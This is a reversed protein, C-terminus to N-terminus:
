ARAGSRAADLEARVLALEEDIPDILRAADALGGAAALAELQRCLDELATARFTAANSKLTHAGRRLEDAEAQESAQRLTAMISASSTLFTEILRNVLADDQQLTDRLEALDAHDATSPRPPPAETGQRPVADTIPGRRPTRALADALDAFRIPKSVYDDMGAALCVEREDAMANATVAIIHPRDAGPWRQHIRRTAELGDMEPMQVDMLVVDYPQRQLAELAELGNGVIDARYGLRQLVLGALQQNTANDEAVLIRLPAVPVPAQAGPAADPTARDPADAPTDGFVDMLVDLLQSPRIPKTLHAALEVDPHAVERHGLSTLLVLPLQRADRDHRIERALTLGDMDPMQMDLIAIDVPDGRRIWEIAEAPSSTERPDMGWAATQRALILRNTPSDDVILLRKGALLAAHDPGKARAPIPAADAELEVHFTSGSGLTSEARISGDMLEILRRSIALGLGTGGYRRTVSADVQSFSAFLRDMRDAPIGVGTDSVALHIRHRGPGAESPEADVTLVVEGRETFKVGNKLLNILIQRLRTSDGVIWEPVGPEFVYAMDIGKQEASAAVLELASEICARLDFPRTELELGGAEIKSFDLIDNIVALLANGSSDIVQAFGRQERSLETDLLLGTMGLVANLPTRIEHSMTALFVSKAQNAADAERSAAQVEDFLRANEIAVAAQAGFAVALNAHEDTYFDPEHKDLAIMGIVRDGFILPSGLWSAVQAPQHAERRFEAFTASADAVIIPTRSRIVQGNPSDDDDLEFSVGILADLDPFGTGGIIELREDRLVQISASDYPVVEQLESLIRDLVQRLDLTTSLALAAARLTDALGRATREADLLRANEAALAALDDNQTRLDEEARKIETIDRAIGVLALVSGDDNRVAATALGVPFDTGDKRRNLVEGQWHGQEITTPLIQSAVEVPTNPSRLATIPQGLIEDEAYGYIDQFADNVFLVTDELDTISVSESISKLAQALMSAQQEARKREQVQTLLDINAQELERTRQQVRQDLEAHAELLGAEAAEREHLAREMQDFLRANELAPASALAATLALEMEDETFAHRTVLDIGITGVTSGRVVLPLLLLSVTGRERMLHSIVATRPDHQVDEVALPRQEEIVYTSAVNGSLPIVHGMASPRGDALYEAVVVSQTRDDGLIAAAAQPAGFAHALERCIVALVAKPELEAAAAAVIRNLLTLDRYRRELVERPVPEDGPDSLAPKTVKAM